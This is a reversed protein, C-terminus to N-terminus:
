LKATIHDIVEARAFNEAFRCTMLEGGMTNRAVERWKDMDVSTEIRFDRVARNSDGNNDGNVIVYDRAFAECGLDLIFYGATECCWHPFRKKNQALPGNFFKSKQEKRMPFLSFNVQVNQPEVLNWKSM